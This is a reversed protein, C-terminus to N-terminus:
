MCDSWPQVTHLGTISTSTNSMSWDQWDSIFWEASVKQENLRCGELNAQGALCVLGEEGDHSRRGGKRDQVVEVRSKGEEYFRVVKQKQM